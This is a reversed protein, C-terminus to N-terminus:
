PAAVALPAPDGGPKAARPLHLIFASGKGIETELEIWGGHSEVIKQAIPLGLGTGGGRTSYFVDFIRQRLEPAIGPGNDSIRLVIEGDTGATTEARVRGGTGLVDKANILINLLAQRLQGEDMAVPPLSADLATEVQIGKHLFDARLFRVVEDVTQNIDRPELRPEMPRAYALFDTVLTELRRVEGKTSVLLTETEADPPCGGAHLEEELMQLNMNMANLPNRIEHALGSALTGVYALRDAMQAEAELRRSRKLLRVVYIFSVLLLLVSITGGAAIKLMLSRRLDDIERGLQYEDVGVEVMGTQTRGNASIIPVAKVYRDQEQLNVRITPEEGDTDIDSADGGPTEMGPPPIVRRRRQPQHFGQASPFVTGGQYTFHAVPRDSADYLTVTRVYHERTLVQSIYESLTTIKQHIRYLDIQGQEALDRAIQVARAQAANIAEKRMRNGLDRFVLHGFILLNACLMGAFVLGAIFVNRGFRLNSREIPRRQNNSRPARVVFPRGAPTRGEQATM